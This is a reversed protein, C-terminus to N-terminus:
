ATRRHNLEPWEARDFRAPLYGLNKRIVRVQQLLEGSRHAIVPDPIGAKVLAEIYEHTNRQTPRKPERKKALMRRLAEGPTIHETEAIEQIQWVDRPDLDVTM